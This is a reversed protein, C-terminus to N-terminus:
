KIDQLRKSHYKTVVFNVPSPSGTKQDLELGSYQFSINARWRSKKIDTRSEVAAEFIVEMEDSYLKM